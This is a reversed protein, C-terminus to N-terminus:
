RRRRRIQGPNPGPYRNARNRAIGDPQAHHVKFPRQILQGFVLLCYDHESKALALVL